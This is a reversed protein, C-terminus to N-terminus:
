RTDVELQGFYSEPNNNCSGSSFLSYSDCLVSRFGSSVISEGFFKYARFHACAGLIDFVCGPQTKGGNPYYDSDGIADLFGLLGGNTHLIQVYNADTPDLREDIESWAFLPLAPDLGVISKVNGGTRAGAAGSVHAGLSHGAIYVDLYSIGIDTVMKNIFDGVVIGIDTVANRSLSYLSQSKSSWDVVIVNLDYTLLLANRIVENVESSYSNTWGHIVFFNKKSKDYNTSHVLGSFNNAPIIEADTPNNRTYLYFIVDDIDARPAVSEDLLNVVHVKGSDDSLIRFREKGHSLLGSVEWYALCLFNCM